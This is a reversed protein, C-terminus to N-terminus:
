KLRIVEIAGAGPLCAYKETAHTRARRSVASHVSYASHGYLERGEGVSLGEIISRKGRSVNSTHVRAVALKKSSTRSRSCKVKPSKNSAMAKHGTTVLKALGEQLIENVATEIEKQTYM